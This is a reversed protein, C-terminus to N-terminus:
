HKQKAKDQLLELLPRVEDEDVEGMQIPPLDREACAAYLDRHDWDMVWMVTRDGIEGSVYRALLEDVSPVPIATRNEFIAALFDWQDALDPRTPRLADAVARLTGPNEDSVDYLLRWAPKGLATYLAKSSGWMLMRLEQILDALDQRESTV